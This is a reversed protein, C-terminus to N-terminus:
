ALDLDNAQARRIGWVINPLTNTVIENSHAIYGINNFTISVSILVMDGIKTWDIPVLKPNAKLGKLIDLIFGPNRARVVRSSHYFPYNSNIMDTAKTSLTDAQTSTGLVVLLTVPQNAMLDKFTTQADSANSDSLVFPQIM